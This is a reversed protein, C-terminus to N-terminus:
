DILRNTHYIMISGSRVIAIIISVLIYSKLIISDRFLENIIEVGIANIIRNIHFPIIIVYTIWITNIPLKKLEKLKVFTKVMFIVALLIMFSSYNIIRAEVSQDIYTFTIHILSFLTILVIYVKKNFKIGIFQFIGILLVIEGGIILTNAAVVTLANPFIGRFFILIFALGKLIYAKLITDIYEENYVKRIVLFVVMLFLYTISLALNLNKDSLYNIFNM